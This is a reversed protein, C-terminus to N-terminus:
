LCEELMKSLVKATYDVLPIIRSYDMRTPGIVGITGLTEEGSTYPSAIISMGEMGQLESESGIIIHVRGAGTSKDLLEIIKSKEEFASFIRRMQEVDAFEPHALLNMRGDIYLDSDTVDKQLASQSLEVVKSLITDFLVKEEKMETLLREKVQAVTLDQLMGNLHHAYKDLEDQSIDDETQVLTNHIIGAQSVLIALVMRPRLRVFDIRKFAIASLRPTLVLGAQGSFSSLIRSTEKLLSEVRKFGGRYARRIREREAQTLQQLTLLSDVYLRLGLDTPVRGASTHPQYLYGLDELDAMVNRITAPSVSMGYKKSIARSGVPMGTKIYEAIVANLVLRDRDERHADDM